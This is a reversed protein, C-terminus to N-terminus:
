HPCVNKLHNYLENVASSEAGNLECGKYEEYALKIVIKDSPLMAIDVGYKSKVFEVIKDLAKYRVNSKLARNDYESVVLAKLNDITM